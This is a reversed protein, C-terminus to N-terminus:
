TSRRSLFMCFLCTAGAVTYGGVAFLNSMRSSKNYSTVFSNVVQTVEHTIEKVYPADQGQSFFSGEAVLTSQPIKVELVATAALYGHFGALAFFLMALSVWVFDLSSDRNRM